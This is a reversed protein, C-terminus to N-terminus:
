LEINSTKRSSLVNSVGNIRGRRDLKLNQSAVMCPQILFLIHQNEQVGPPNVIVHEFQSLFLRTIIYNLTMDM